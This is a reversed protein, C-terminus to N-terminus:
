FLHFFLAYFFLFIPLHFAFKKVKNQFMLKESEEIKKKRWM